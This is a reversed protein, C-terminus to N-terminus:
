KPPTEEGAQPQPTKLAAAFATREQEATAAIPPHAYDIGDEIVVEVRVRQIAANHTEVSAIKAGQPIETLSPMKGDDGVNM